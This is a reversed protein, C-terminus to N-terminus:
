HKSGEMEHMVPPNKKKHPPPPPGSAGRNEVDSNVIVYSRLPSVDIPKIQKYKYSNYLRKFTM